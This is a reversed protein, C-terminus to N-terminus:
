ETLPCHEFAASGGRAPNDPDGMIRSTPSHEHSDQEAEM